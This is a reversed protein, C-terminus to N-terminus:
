YYKRILAIGLAGVGLVVGLIIMNYWEPLGSSGSSIILLSAPNCARSMSDITLEINYIGPDMEITGMSYSWDSGSWDLNFQFTRDTGVLRISITSYGSDQIEFEITDGRTFERRNTPDNPTTMIIDVTQQINIPQNSEKNNTLILVIPIILCFMILMSSIIRRNNLVM